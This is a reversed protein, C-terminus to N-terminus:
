PAGQGGLRPVKALAFYLSKVLPARRRDDKPCNINQHVYLQKKGVKDTTVM